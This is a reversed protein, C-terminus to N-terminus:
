TVEMGVCLELAGLMFVNKVKRDQERRDGDCSIYLKRVASARRKRQCSLKSFVEDVYRNERRERTVAMCATLAM